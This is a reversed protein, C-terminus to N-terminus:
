EFEELTTRQGPRRVESVLAGDTELGLVDEAAYGVTETHERPAYVGLRWQERQAQQLARVLTSQDDLQRVDGNV